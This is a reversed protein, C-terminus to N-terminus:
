TLNNDLNFNNNLDFNKNTIDLYIMISISVINSIKDNLNNEYCVDLIRMSNKAIYISLYTFLYNKKIFM